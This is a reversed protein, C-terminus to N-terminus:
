LKVPQILGRQQLADLFEAVDRAAEERTVEHEEIVADILDATSSKGDMRAWIASGVANLTFIANMNAVGTRVPVIITEDAVMRTVIGEAKAFRGSSSDEDIRAPQM